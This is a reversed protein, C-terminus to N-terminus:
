CAARAMSFSCNGLLNRSQGLSREKTPHAHDFVHFFGSKLQNWREVMVFGFGQLGDNLGIKGRARMLINSKGRLNVHDSMNRAKKLNMGGLYRIPM